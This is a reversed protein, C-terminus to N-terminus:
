FGFSVAVAVGYKTENKYRIETEGAPLPANKSIGDGLVQVSPSVLAGVGINLSKQENKPRFGVMVGLAAANVINNEGSLVLGVFPGWGWQNGDNSDHSFLRHVEAIVGINVTSEEEIRVVGNVISAKKVRTKGGIDFGAMLGAGLNFEGFVKESGKKDITKDITESAIKKVDDDSLQMTSGGPQVVSYAKNGAADINVTVAAIANSYTLLTAVLILVVFLKKM